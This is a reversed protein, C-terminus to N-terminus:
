DDEMVGKQLAMGWESEAVLHAFAMRINKPLQCGYKELSGVMNKWYKHGHPSEEWTVFKNLAYACLRSDRDAFHLIVRLQVPGPQITDPSKSKLVKWENKEFFSVYRVFSWEGESLDARFRYRPGKSYWRYEEVWQPLGTVSDLLDM